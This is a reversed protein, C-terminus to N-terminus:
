FPLPKGNVNPAGMAPLDIAFKDITEGAANTGPTALSKLMFIAGLIDQADPDSAAQPEIRGRLADLGALALNIRGSAGLANQSSLTLDGDLDLRLLPSKLYSAPITLTVPSQAVAKSLEVIFREVAADGAKGLPDTLTNATMDGLAAFLEAAPLNAFDFTLQSEAPVIEAAPVGGIKLESLDSIDLGSYGLAIKGKAKDRDIDGASFRLDFNTLKLSRNGESPNNFAADAVVITYDVGSFIEVAKLYAAAMKQSWAAQQEASQGAATGKQMEEILAGMEDRLAARGALDIDYVNNLFTVRGFRFEDGNTTDTVRLDALAIESLQDHKQAANPAISAKVAIEAIAVTGANETGGPADPIAITVDSMVWNLSQFDRDKLSFVGEFHQPKVAIDAAKAGTADEIVFRDAHTLDSLRYRDGDGEPTLTLGIDGLMAKAAPNAFALGHITIRYSDTGAVVQVREHRLAGQTQLREVQLLYQDLAAALKEAEAANVAPAEPAAPQPQPAPAAASVAVGDAPVTAAEEKKEDCAGILLGATLLIALSLKGFPRM